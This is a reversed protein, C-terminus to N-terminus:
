KKLAKDVLGEEWGIDLLQNRIQTENFGKKRADMTYTKLQLLQEKEKGKNSTLRWYAVGAGILIAIIILIIIAIWGIKRVLSIEERVEGLGKELEGAALHEDFLISVPQQSANVEINGRAGEEGDVVVTLETRDENWEQSVITGGELIINGEDEPVPEQYTFILTHESFTFGCSNEGCDYEPAMCINSVCNGNQCDDDNDCSIEMKVHPLLLNRAIDQGFNPQGINEASDSVHIMGKNDLVYLGTEGATIELDVANDPNSDDYYEGVRFIEEELDKGCNHIAGHGDLVYLGKVHNNSDFSLELDQAIDWGFYSCGDNALISNKVDRNTTFIRGYGDLVYFNGEADFELDRAIDWGFYPKNQIIEIRNKLSVYGCGSVNVPHLGGMMDLVVPCNSIPDIELDVAVDNNRFKTAENGPELKVADLYANNGGIIVDDMMIIDDSTGFFVIGPLTFTFEYKSWENSNIDFKKFFKKKNVGDSEYIELSVWVKGKTTSSKKAYFSFTLKNNTTFILLPRQLHIEDINDFKLSKTGDYATGESFLKTTLEDLGSPDFFTLWDLIVYYEGGSYPTTETNEFSPNPLNNSDYGGFWYPASTRDIEKDAGGIIHIGGWGDLLYMTGDKDTEIDQAIDFDHWYLPSEVTPLSYNHVAGYGDLVYYGPEQCQWNVCSQENSCGAESQCCIIGGDGLEQSLISADQPTIRGDENYDGCAYDYGVTPTRGTYLELLVKVDQCNARGDQTVDGKITTCEYYQALCLFDTLDVVSDGNFDYQLCYNTQSDLCQTVVSMDKINVDGDRNLDPNTIQCKDGAPEEEGIRASKFNYYDNQCKNSPVLVIGKSLNVYNVTFSVEEKNPDLIITNIKTNKILDSYSTKAFIWEEKLPYVYLELSDIGTNGASYEFTIKKSVVGQGPFKILGAFKYDKYCGLPWWGDTTAIDGSMANNEDWKGYGAAYIEGDEVATVLSIM